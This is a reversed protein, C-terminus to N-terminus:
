EKRAAQLEKDLGLEAVRKHVWARSVSLWQAMEAVNGHTNAIAKRWIRLESERMARAFLGKVILKGRTM